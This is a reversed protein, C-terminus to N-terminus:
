VKVVCVYFDGNSTDISSYDKWNITHSANLIIPDIRGKMTGTIIDSNGSLSGHKEANHHISFQYALTDSSTSPRLYSKDNTLWVVYGVSCNM